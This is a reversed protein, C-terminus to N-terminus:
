LEHEKPIKRLIALKSTRYTPLSALSGSPFGGLRDLIEKIAQKYLEKVKELDNAGYEDWNHFISRFDDSSVYGISKNVSTQSTNVRQM